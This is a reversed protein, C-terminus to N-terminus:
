SSTADFSAQLNYPTRIPTTVEQVGDYLSSENFILDSFPVRPLSLQLSAM